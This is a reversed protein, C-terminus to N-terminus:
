VMGLRGSVRQYFCPKIWRDQQAVTPQPFEGAKHSIGDRGSMTWEVCTQLGM